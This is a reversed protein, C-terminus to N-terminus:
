YRFCSSPACAADSNSSAVGATCPVAWRRCTKGTRGIDARDPKEGRKRGGNEGRTPRVNTSQLWIHEQEPKGLSEDITIELRNSPIAKANGFLVRRVSVVYKGGQTLDYLQNLVFEVCRCAGPELVAGSASGGGLASDTLVRGRLTLPSEKGDPLLVIPRYSGLPATETLHVREHGVNKLLVNLIIQEGPAYVRKNTAISVALGDITRGWERGNSLDREFTRNPEALALAPVTLVAALAASRFSFLTRSM